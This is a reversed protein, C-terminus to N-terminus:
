QLLIVARCVCVPTARSRRSLRDFDPPGGLQLAQKRHFPPPLRSIQMGGVCVPLVTHTGTFWAAGAEFNIWPRSISVDSLILVVMQAERLTGAIREFWDDGSRLDGTDSSVFVRVSGLFCDEITNKIAIALDREEHIHSVFIQYPLGAM